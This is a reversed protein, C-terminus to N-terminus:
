CLRVILLLRCVTVEYQMSFAIHWLPKHSPSDLQGAPLNAASRKGICRPSERLVRVIGQQYVSKQLFVIM